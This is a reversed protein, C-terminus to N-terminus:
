HSWVNGCSQCRHTHRGDSLFQEVVRQERGCRNCTHDPDYVPGRFTVVPKATAEKRMVVIGSELWLTYTGHPMGDPTGTWTVREGARARSYASQYSDSDERVVPAQPVRIPPAQPPKEAGILLLFEFLIMTKM